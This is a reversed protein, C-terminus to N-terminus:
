RKEGEPIVREKLPAERLPAGIANPKIDTNGTNQNPQNPILPQIATVPPQPKTYLDSPANNMAGSQPVDYPGQGISALQTKYAQSGNAISLLLTLLTLKSLM